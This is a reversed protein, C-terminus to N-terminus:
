QAMAILIEDRGLSLIAGVSKAKLHMVVGARNQLWLDGTTSTDLGPPGNGQTYIGAFDSVNNLSYVEGAADIRSLAVGPGAIAGVLRFPYDRQQFRLKGTGAAEGSIFNETLDVTGVPTLGAITQQNPVGPLVSCASLPILCLTLTLAFAGRRVANRVVPDTM